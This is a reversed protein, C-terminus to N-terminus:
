ILELENSDSELNNSISDKIYVHYSLSDKDRNLDAPIKWTIIWIGDNDEDLMNVPSYCQETGGTTKCVILSVGDLKPIANDSEIECLFDIESGPSGQPPNHELRLIKIPEDVTTNNDGNGDGGDGDGGDGDGGDGDGNKDKDDGNNQICLSLSVISTLLLAIIMIHLLKKSISLM